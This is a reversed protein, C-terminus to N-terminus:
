CSHFKMVIASEAPADYYDQRVAVAEFGLSHYLKRAPLNSQRVELFVAGRYEALLQQILSRAVGRRRFPPDVAVNLIEMEDPGTHRAVAFGALREKWAAVLCQQRLYDAPNWNVAPLSASQIRWIEDLDSETAPRIAFM